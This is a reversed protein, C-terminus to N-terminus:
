HGPQAQSASVRHGNIHTYTYTMRLTAPGLFRVQARSELAVPVVAGDIRDYSRVIQVDKIWFSPSRALRGQVRVLRGDDPQLFMSGSVLVREKRRPSLLINVLGEDDVGNAQFVYNSPALTSRRMEGLAIVNREGELVARLGKSRISESGGEATIQYRFGMQPSYETVAEVWGTRNGHEAELRRIARYPPQTDDQALFQQISHDATDPVTAHLSSAVAVTVLLLVALPGRRYNRVKASQAVDTGHVLSSLLCDQALAEIEERRMICRDRRTKMGFSLNMVLVMVVLSPVLM